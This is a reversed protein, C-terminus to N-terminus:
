LLTFEKKKKKDNWDWLISLMYFVRIRVQVYPSRYTYGRDYAYARAVEKM